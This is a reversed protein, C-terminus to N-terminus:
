LIIDHEMITHGRIQKRHQIDNNINQENKGDLIDQSLDFFEGLLLQLLLKYTVMNRRRAIKM